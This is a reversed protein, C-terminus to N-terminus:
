LSPRRAQSHAQPHPRASHCDAVSGGHRASRTRTRPAAPGSSFFGALVRFISVPYQMSESRGYKRPYDEAATENWLTEVKQAMRDHTQEVYESTVHAHGSRIVTKCDRNAEADDVLLGCDEACRWVDAATPFPRSLRFENEFLAYPM